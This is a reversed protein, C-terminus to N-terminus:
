ITHLTEYYKIKDKIFYTWRKHNPTLLIADYSFILSERIIQETNDFLLDIGFAPPYKTCSINLKRTRKKHKKINITDHISIGYTLFIFKIWIQLRNTATYICIDHGNNIIDKILETAGYRLAPIFLFRQLFSRKELPFKENDRILTDDLDFAIKM